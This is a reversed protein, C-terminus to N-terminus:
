AAVRVKRRAGRIAGIVACGVAGGILTSSVIWIMSLVFPQLFGYAPSGGIPGGGSITFRHASWEFIYAAWYVPILMARVIAAYKATLIFQSRYPRPEGSSGLRVAFYVPVIALHLWVASILSTVTRPAGAHEAIVRLVIAVAAIIIPIRLNPKMIDTHDYGFHESEANRVAAFSFSFSNHSPQPLLSLKIRM